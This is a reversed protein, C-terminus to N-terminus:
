QSLSHTSPLFKLTPMRNSLHLPPAWAPMQPLQLSVYLSQLFGEKATM